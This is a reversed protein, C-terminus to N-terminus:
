ILVGDCHDIEHQIIQATFGEFRATRERLRRDQYTVTIREYREAARMGDLSLCGEETRYPGSKAVIRPNLMTMRRRTEQDAFVIIRRSVGIMNAAMGVCADAHAALTDDLDAAVGLDDATAPASPIRLFAPSTMVPRQM